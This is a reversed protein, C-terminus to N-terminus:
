LNHQFASICVSGYARESITLLSSYIPFFSALECPVSLPERPTSAVNAANLRQWCVCHTCVAHRQLCKCVASNFRNLYITAHTISCRGTSPACLAAQCDCFSCHAAKLLADFTAMVHQLLDCPKSHCLHPHMFLATALLTRYMWHPAYRLGSHSDLSFQQQHICGLRVCAVSMIVPSVVFSHSLVPCVGESQEVLRPGSQM